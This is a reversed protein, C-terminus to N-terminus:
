RELVLRIEHTQKSVRKENYCVERAKDIIQLNHDKLQLIFLIHVFWACEKM